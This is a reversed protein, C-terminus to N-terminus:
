ARAAVVVTMLCAKLVFGRENRQTNFLFQVCCQQCMIHRSLAYQDDAEYPGVEDSTSNTMMDEGFDYEDDGGFWDDM